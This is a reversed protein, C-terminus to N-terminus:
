LEVSHSLISTIHSKSSNGISVDLNSGIIHPVFEQLMEDICAPSFFKRSSEAVWAMNFATQSIEFQRRKLFLDRSLM